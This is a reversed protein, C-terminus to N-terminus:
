QDLEGYATGYEESEQWLGDWQNYEYDYARQTAKHCGPCLTEYCGCYEHEDGESAKLPKVTYEPLPADCAACRVYPGSADRLNDHRSPLKM